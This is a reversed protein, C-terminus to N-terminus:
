RWGGHSRTTGWAAVVNALEGPPNHEQVAEPVKYNQLWLGEQWAGPGCLVILGPVAGLIYPSVRYITPKQPDEPDERWMEVSLFVDCCFAHNRIEEPDSLLPHHLGSTCLLQCGM